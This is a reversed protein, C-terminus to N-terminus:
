ISVHLHFLLLELFLCILLDAELPYCFFLYIHLYILYIFYISLIFLIFLMMKGQAMTRRLIHLKWGFRREAKFCHLPILTSLEPM